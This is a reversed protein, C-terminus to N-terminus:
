FRGAAGALCGSPTCGGVLQVDGAKPTSEAEAGDDDSALLLWLVGAGAMVVGGIVVLCAAVIADITSNRAVPTGEPVDGSPDHAM